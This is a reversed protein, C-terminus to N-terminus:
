SPSRGLIATERGSKRYPHVKLLTRTSRFSFPCLKPGREMWYIQRIKLYFM